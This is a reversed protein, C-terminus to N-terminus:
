WKGFPCSSEPDKVKEILICGCGGCKDKERYECTNCINLIEVQESFERGKGTLSRYQARICLYAGSIIYQIFTITKTFMGHM